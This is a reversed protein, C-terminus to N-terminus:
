FSFKNAAMFGITKLCILVVHMKRLYESQCIRMIQNFSSIVEELLCLVHEMPCSFCDPLPGGERCIKNEIEIRTIDDVGLPVSAQM